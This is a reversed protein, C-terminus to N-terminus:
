GFMVLPHPFVHTRRLLQVRQITFNLRLILTQPIKEVLRQRGQAVYPVIMAGKFPQVHFAFYQRDRDDDGVDFRMGLAAGPKGLNEALAQQQHSRFLM